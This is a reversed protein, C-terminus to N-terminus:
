LCDEIAWRRRAELDAEKAAITADAAADWSAAPPAHHHPIVGTNAVTPFLNRVEQQMQGSAEALLKASQEYYTDQECFCLRWLASTLVSVVSAPGFSACGGSPLLTTM